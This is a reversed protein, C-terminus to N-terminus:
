LQVVGAFIGAATYLEVFPSTGELLATGNDAIRYAERWIQYETPPVRLNDRSTRNTRGMQDEAARHMIEAGEDLVRLLKPDRAAVAKYTQAFLRHRAETPLNRITYTAERYIHEVARADVFSDLIQSAANM